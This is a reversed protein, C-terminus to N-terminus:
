SARYRAPSILAAKTASYVSRNPMGIHANASGNLVIPAPNAFLPLLAHM